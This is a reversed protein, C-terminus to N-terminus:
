RARSVNLEPYVEFIRKAIDSFSYYPWLRHYTVFCDRASPSLGECDFYRLFGRSLVRTGGTGTGTGTGTGAGFASRPVRSKWVWSKGQRVITGMDPVVQNPDEPIHLVIGANIAAMCMRTLKKLAAKAGEDVLTVGGAGLRPRCLPFSTQPSTEWADRLLTTVPLVGVLVSEDAGAGQFVRAAVKRVEAMTALNGSLPDALRDGRIELDDRHAFSTSEITFATAPTGDYDKPPNLQFVVIHSTDLVTDVGGGLEVLANAIMTLALRHTQRWVGSEHLLEAVAASGLSAYIPPVTNSSRSTCITRFHLADLNSTPTKSIVILNSM